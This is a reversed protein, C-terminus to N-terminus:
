TSSVIKDLYEGTMPEEEDTVPAPNSTPLADIGRRLVAGRLRVYDSVPEFYRGGAVDYLQMAVKTSPSPQAQSAVVTTGHEVTPPAPRYLISAVLVVALCASMAQWLHSQRKTSARGAQFMLRDRDIGTRVPNLGGLVLELERESPTLRDEQM